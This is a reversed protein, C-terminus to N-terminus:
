RRDHCPTGCNHVACQAEVWEWFEDHTMHLSPPLRLGDNATIRQVRYWVPESGPQSYDIRFADIGALDALNSVAPTQATPPCLLLVPLACRGCSRMTILSRLM